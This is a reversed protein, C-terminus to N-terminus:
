KLERKKPSPIKHLKLSPGKESPWYSALCGCSVCTLEVVELEDSYGGLFPENCKPCKGLLHARTIMVKM